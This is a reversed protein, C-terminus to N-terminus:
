AAPGKQLDGASPIDKTFHTDDVNLDDFFSAKLSFVTSDGSRKVYIIEGKEDKPGAALLMKKSGENVALEWAPKEFGYGKGSPDVVKEARVNNMVVIFKLVKESDPLSSIGKSQFKWFSKLPDKPDVGRELGAVTTKGEGKLRAVTIKNVKESDLNFLSLDAWFLSVPAAESLADYIGLLETINVDALYVKESAAKRFFYGNEGAQKTGLRLDLLSTKGSGFFKISFADADQIGFDTFLKKESGRLEGQSSRLKQILKEVKVPDAKANWLSKVKWIDNEKALEVAPSQSGGKKAPRSIVIRELKLPDFAAFAVIGGQVAGAHDSLSRVCSKVLIGFALLGLIISLIIIQKPKM